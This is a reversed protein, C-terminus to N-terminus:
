KITMGRIRISMTPKCVIPGTTNSFFLFFFGCTFCHKMKNDNEVRTVREIIYEAGRQRRRNFVIEPRETRTYM